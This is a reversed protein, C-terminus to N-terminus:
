NKKLKTVKLDLSSLNVFIPRHDSHHFNFPSVHISAFKSIIDNNMLFNDLREKIVGNGTDKKEM